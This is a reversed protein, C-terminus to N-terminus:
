FVWLSIVLLRDEHIQVVDLDAVCEGAQSDSVAALRRYQASRVPHPGVVRYLASFEDHDRDIRAVDFAPLNVSRVNRVFWSIQEAVAHVLCGLVGLLLGVSAGGM